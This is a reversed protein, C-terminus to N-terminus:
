FARLAKKEDSCAAGWGKFNFSIYLRFVPLFIDGMICYSLFANFFMLFVEPFLKVHLSIYLLILNTNM